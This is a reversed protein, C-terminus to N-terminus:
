QIAFVVNHAASLRASPHSYSYHFPVPVPVPVHVYAVVGASSGRIGLIRLVGTRDVVGSTLAVVVALKQPIHRLGPYSISDSAPTPM